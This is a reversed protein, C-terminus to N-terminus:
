TSNTASPHGIFTKPVAHKAATEPQNASINARGRRQVYGVRSPINKATAIEINEAAKIHTWESSVSQDAAIEPNTKAANALDLILNTQYEFQLPPFM